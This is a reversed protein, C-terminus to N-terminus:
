GDDTEEEQDLLARMEKTRALKEKCRGLTPGISGLAMDMTPAIDKMSVRNAWLALLHRCREDLRRLAMGLQTAEDFGLVLDEPGDNLDPRAEADTLPDTRHKRRIEAFCEHEAVRMIWRPLAQPERITPLSATLKLFVHQYIDEREDPSMGHATIMGWATPSLVEVLRNWAKADGALAAEALAPLDEGEWM